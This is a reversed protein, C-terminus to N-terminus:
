VMHSLKKIKSFLVDALLEEIDFSQHNKRGCLCRCAKFQGLKTTFNKGYKDAMEQNLQIIVNECKARIVNHTHTLKLTHIVDARTSSIFFM